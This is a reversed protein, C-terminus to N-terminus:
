FDSIRGKHEWDGYRTPEPGKPGDKEGTKKNFYVGTKTTDLEIDSSVTARYSSLVDAEKVMPRDKNAADHAGLPVTADPRKVIKGKKGSNSSTRIIIKSLTSRFMETLEVGM